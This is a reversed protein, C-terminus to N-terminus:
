GDITALRESDGSVFPNISRALWEYEEHSADSLCLHSRREKESPVQFELVVPGRFSRADQPSLTPVDVPLLADAPEEFVTGSWVPGETRYQVTEGDSELVEFQWIRAGIKTGLVMLLAAILAMPGLWGYAFIQLGGPSTASVHMIGGVSMTLLGAGSVLSAFALAANRMRKRPPCVVRWRMADGSTFTMDSM